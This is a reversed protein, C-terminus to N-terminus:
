RCQLAESRSPTTRPLTSYVSSPRSREPKYGVMVSARARGVGMAVLRRLRDLTADGDGDGHPTVARNLGPLLVHDFELGKASHITSLGVQEPGSPWVSQRTLECYPIRARPAGPSCPRVMRRGEAAPNRGVGTRHRCVRSPRGAHVRAPQQVNGIVVKPRRGNERCARFDPLTGDDDLPLGAVLPRAFAAIEATNRHNQQAQLDHEAAAIIGVEGWTFFPPYIRQVADLVFTTSHDERLHALVARVQNASFDQAEDVIM